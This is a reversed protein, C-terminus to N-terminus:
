RKWHTLDIDEFEELETIHQNLKQIQEYSFQHKITHDTVLIKNLNPEQHPLCLMDLIKIYFKHPDVCLDDYFFIHLKNKYLHKRWKKITSIYDFFKFKTCQQFFDHTSLNDPYMGKNICFNYYSDLWIFPNRIVLSVHTAYQDLYNILKPHMRWQHTNFNLSIEKQEYPMVYNELDLFPELLFYNEKIYDHDIEPHQCLNEYLWTTGTKPYGINCYHIKKM